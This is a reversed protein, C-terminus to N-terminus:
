IHVQIIDLFLKYQSDPLNIIRDQVLPDLGFLFIYKELAEEIKKDDPNEEIDWIDRMFDNNKNM